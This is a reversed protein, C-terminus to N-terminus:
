TDYVYHKNMMRRGIRKITHLIMWLLTATSNNWVSMMMDGFTAVEEIAMIGDFEKQREKLSMGSNKSMALHKGRSKQLEKGVEFTNILVDKLPEVRQASFRREVYWAMIVESISM